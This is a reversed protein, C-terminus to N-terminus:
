HRFHEGPSSARRMAALAGPDRILESKDNIYLLLAAAPSQVFPEQLMTVAPSTSSLL